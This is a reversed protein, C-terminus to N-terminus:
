ANVGHENGWIFNNMTGQSAAAIQLAGFLTDVLAQATETNGSIVAGPYAPNIMSHEPIIIKLPKLCGENLPIDDAALCRFTYLVAAKVVATPANFNGPHQPITGTFDIVAERNAQDVAISVSIQNGCDMEYTFVGNNLNSLVRRVSEEANDQIHRMYAHVTAVGYHEVMKRLETAGKECAALQAKFDAINMDPNRAPWPGGSLIEFIERERFHDNEM